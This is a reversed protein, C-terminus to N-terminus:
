LLNESPSNDLKSYVRFLPEESLCKFLSEISYDERKISLNDAITRQINNYDPINESKDKEFSEVSSKIDNNDPKLLEMWFPYFIILSLLSKFNTAIKGSQGKSSVYAIPFDDDKMDGIGGIFGYMGGSKDKAFINFQEKSYFLYEEISQCMIFDCNQELLSYILREQKSQPLTPVTNVSYRKQMEEKLKDDGVIFYSTTGGPLKHMKIRNTM